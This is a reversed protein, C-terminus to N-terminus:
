KITITVNIQTEISRTKQTQTFAQKKFPYFTLLGKKLQLGSIILTQHQPVSIRQGTQLFTM